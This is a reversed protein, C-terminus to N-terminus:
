QARDTSFSALATPEDPYIEMVEDLKAARLLRLTKEPVDSFKIQGGRSRLSALARFLEGLGASDLYLVGSLNVLIQNRGGEIAQRIKRGVTKAAEGATLPGAVLFVSVPGVDRVMVAASSKGKGHTRAWGEKVIQRARGLALSEAPVSETITSGAAIYSGKGIRLPAVLMSGSGVFVEDELVTSHKNEGDYNCTVTGAGINVKEGLDADGLYTLHAVKTDRGLRSKKVEVFNGIRVREGIVAGDRLHAFPGIGAGSAIECKVIVCCPRVTVSDGLVSDIITSYPWLTCGRGVHTRGLLSVGPEIVTDPGVDVADDIYTVEPDKITVGDRMLMEAKRLRLIKEMQALQARDNVGLVEGADAVPFAGVKLRHRNFIEVLDTLLYEKQANKASLEDLHKLLPALAFCLIGSNIEKIKLQAPTAVKEEVIARVRNGSGRVIRGYGTPDPPRSTLVTAAARSKTHAEVLARLTQSRLLPADGVLVLLTPSPCRELEQRAVLLAHGTGRQEGQEIFTIGPRAYVKRVEATEHGIVMYTRDPGAQLGARLVYDGLPRGALRHLMKSHESKFRTAKGAALILLSFGQDAM